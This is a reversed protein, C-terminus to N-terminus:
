DNKGARNNVRFTTHVTSKGIGNATSSTSVSIVFKRRKSYLFYDIRIINIVRSKKIGGEDRIYVLLQQDLDLFM